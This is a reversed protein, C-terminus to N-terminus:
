GIVPCEGEAVTPPVDFSVDGVSLHGVVVPLVIEGIIFRSIGVAGQEM